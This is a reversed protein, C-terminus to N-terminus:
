TLLIVTRLLPLAANALGQLRSPFRDQALGDNNTIVAICAFAVFAISKTQNPLVVGGGCGFHFHSDSCHQCCEHALHDAGASEFCFQGESLVNTFECCKEHINHNFNVHSDTDLCLAGGPCIGIILLCAIACFLCICTKIRTLKM